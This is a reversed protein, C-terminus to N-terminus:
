CAPSRIRFGSNVERGAARKEFTGSPKRAQFAMEFGHGAEHVSSKIKVPKAKLGLKYNYRLERASASCWPYTFRGTGSFKTIVHGFSRGDTRVVPM